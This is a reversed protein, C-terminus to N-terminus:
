LPSLQSVIACQIEMLEEFKIVKEKCESTGFSQLCNFLHVLPNQLIARVVTEKDRSSFYERSKKLNILKGCANRQTNTFAHERRLCEFPGDILHTWRNSMKLPM